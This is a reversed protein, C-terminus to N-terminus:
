QAELAGLWDRNFRNMAAVVGEQLAAIVADAATEIFTPLKSAQNPPFPGLVHSVASQAPRSVGIRLRPFDESGLERIISKLGGNGGSSGHPRLRLTGFPLDLDDAVVLLQELPIRYFRVLRAVAYGSENMYTIPKALLVPTEGFRGSAIEARFKGAKRMSMGHRRALTDIVMYGVNHRTNEYRPGPNGLGVVIRLEPNSDEQTQGRWFRM